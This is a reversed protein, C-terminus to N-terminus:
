SHLRQLNADAQWATGQRHSAGDAAAARLVAFLAAPLLCLALSSRASFVLFHHRTTISLPPRACVPYPETAGGSSVFQHHPCHTAPIRPFPPHHCCAICLDETCPCDTVALSWFTSAHHHSQHKPPTTRVGAHSPPCHADLALSVNLGSLQLQGLAPRVYTAVSRRKTLDLM